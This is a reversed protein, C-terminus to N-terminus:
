KNRRLMVPPKTDGTKENVNSDNVNFYSVDAKESQFAEEWTPKKKPIEKFDNEMTGYQDAIKKDKWADEFFTRLFTDEDFIVAFFICFLVNLLPATFIFAPMNMKLLLAMIPIHILSLAGWKGGLYIWHGGWCGVFFAFWAANEKSKPPRVAKRWWMPATGYKYTYKDIIPPPAGNSLGRGSSLSTTNHGGSIKELIECEPCVGLIQSARLGGLEKGCKWCKTM